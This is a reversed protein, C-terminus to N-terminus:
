AGVESDRNFRGALGDRMRQNVIDSAIKDALSKKTAKSDPKMGLELAIAQLALKSYIKDELRSTIEEVSLKSLSSLVRKADIGVEKAPSAGANRKTSKRSVGMYAAIAPVKEALANFEELRPLSQRLKAVDETSPMALFFNQLDRLFGILETFADNIEQKQSESPLTDLLGELGKIFGGADFRASKSTGGM